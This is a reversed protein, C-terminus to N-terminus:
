RLTVLVKIKGTGSALGELAKGLVTGVQPNDDRMACGPTTSTVLLDGPEIPGNECSVKCIVIGAIAMPVIEVEGIKHREIGEDGGPMDIASANNWDASVGVFGPKSSVIGAVLKSRAETSKTVSVPNQPDIVVVDGPELTYAGQKVAIIECLDAGSSFFSGRAYVDGSGDVKFRIESTSGRKLECEIFQSTPSSGEPIRIELMDTADPLDDEIEFTVVQGKTLAQKILTLGPLVRKASEILVEGRAHLQYEDSPSQEGIALHDRVFLDGNFYGAWQAGNAIAYVAYQVGSSGRAYVASRGGGAAVARVADGHEGSNRALIAAGGSGGNWHASIAYTSGGQVLIARKLSGADDITVRSVSDPKTKNIGVRGEEDIYVVDLPDGDLADLSYGDLNCTDDIGDAFGEPVDVLKHWSLSSVDVDTITSDVIMEGTISNPENRRVYLTDHTHNRLAFDGSDLGDLLDADLGSGQGDNQSTWAGGEIKSPQIEAAPSIDSDTITGDVIMEGTISGAEGAIVYRDDHDHSALAYSSAELGGLSDANLAHFAYPVATLPRRPSLAEGDVEIELWYPHDFELTLPQSDGLLTSLVGNSDAEAVKSESWLLTGGTPSNFIKFTLSHTGILPEGTAADTLRAQYTILRPISAYIPATLLIIVLVIFCTARSLM